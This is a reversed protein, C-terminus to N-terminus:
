SKDPREWGIYPKIDLIYRIWNTFSYKKIIHPDIVSYPQEIFKSIQNWNDDKLVFINNANYFDYHIIDENDTILKKNGYLAEFPRFSLGNHVKNRFDVIVDYQYELQVMERYDLTKDLAEFNTSNKYKEYEQIDAEEFYILFRNPIGNNNLFSIFRFIIPMREPVYTGIFFLGKSSRGNMSHNPICDFYFNTSYKFSYSNNSLLDKPDFVFFRSFLPIYERITPYKDLGDWQYCINIKAYKIVTKVIDIEWVDPRIFLAYDAPNDLFNHLRHNLANLRYERRLKKKYKRDLLFTKHLFNKFKLYFSQYKFEGFDLPIIDVDFGILKTNYELMKHFGFNVPIFLLITKNTIHELIYYYFILM